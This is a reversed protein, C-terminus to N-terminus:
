MDEERGKASERWVRQMIDALDGVLYPPNKSHIVMHCNACVPVLDTQPNVLEISASDALPNVHHVQILGRGIEGYAIEFDFQCVHCYSGHLAIAQLRAKRNREIKTLEVKYRRGERYTLKQANFGTTESEEHIKLNELLKRWQRELKEAIEDPVHVGSAQPTWDFTDSVSARLQDLDILGETQPEFLYEFVFNVYNAQRTAYDPISTDWHSDTFVESTAYGAAFVGKPEKGLRMLFIRNGPRIRRTSGCSWRGTILEGSRVGGLDDAFDNWPFRRPNWVLLYCPM